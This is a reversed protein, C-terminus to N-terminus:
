ASSVEGRAAEYLENAWGLASSAKSRPIPTVQYQSQNKLALLRGLKAALPPRGAGKLRTVQDTHDRTKVARGTLLLLIADASNIGSTIATSTAADFRGGALDDRAASLFEEAKRLHAKADSLATM